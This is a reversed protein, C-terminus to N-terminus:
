HYIGSYCFYVFICGGRPLNAGRFLFLFVVLSGFLVCLFWGFLVCLFVEVVLIVVLALAVLLFIHTHASFLLM